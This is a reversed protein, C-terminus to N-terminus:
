AAPRNVDDRSYHTIAADTGAERVERKASPILRPAAGRISGFPLVAFSDFANRMGAGHRVGYEPLLEGLGASELM